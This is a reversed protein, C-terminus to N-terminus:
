FTPKIIKIDASHEMTITKNSQKNTQQVGVLFTGMTSRYTSLHPWM